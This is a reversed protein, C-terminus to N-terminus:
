ALPKLRAELTFLAVALERSDGEPRGCMEAVLNVIVEGRAGLLHPGCQLFYSRPSKTPQLVGVLESQVYVSLRGQREEIEPLTLLHMRLEISHAAGAPFRFGLQARCGLMWVRDAEDHGWGERLHPRAKGGSFAIRGSGPLAPFASEAEAQLQLGHPPPGAGESPEADILNDIVPAAYPRLLTIPEPSACKFLLSARLGAGMLAGQGSHWVVRKRGTALVTVRRISQIGNVWCEWQEPAASEAVEAVVELAHASNVSVWASAAGQLTYSVEDARLERRVEGLDFEVSPRDVILGGRATSARCFRLPASFLLGLDRNDNSEPRRAYPLTLVLRTTDSKANSPGLLGVLRWRPQRDWSVTAAMSVERGSAELVAGKVQAEDMMGSGEFEFRWRSDADLRVEIEAQRGTWRLSQGVHREPHHWGVSGAKDLAVTVVPSIRALAGLAMRWSWVDALQNFLLRLSNEQRFRASAKVASAEAADIREVLRSVAGCVGAATWEAYREGDSGWLSLELDLWTHLPVVAPLGCWIAEWVVGSSKRWYDVPSYPAVVLSARQLLEAYAANSLFGSHIDINAHQAALEQLAAEAPKCSSWAHEANAHMLWHWDPYQVALQALLEPLLTYGKNEKADGLYLLGVRKHKRAEAGPAGPEVMGSLVVPHPLVSRQALIGFERAHSLGTGFFRVPAQPGAALDFALRYQLAALPDVVRFGTEASPDLEIGSPMMLYVVFTPAQDGPFDKMWRVAGYLHKESVTPFLVLSDVGFLEQPLASLEEYLLDNLQRFDEHAGTVPDHNLCEYCTRSFAPVVSAGALESEAFSRNGLITVTVGRAKAEAAIASDLFWHHGSARELNPDCIVLNM